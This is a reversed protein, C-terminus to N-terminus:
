GVTLELSAVMEVGGGGPYGAPVVAVIEVSSGPVLSAPLTVVQLPLGGANVDSTPQAETLPAAIGPVPNAEKETRVAVLSVCPISQNPAAAATSGVPGAVMALTTLRAYVLVVAGPAARDTSTALVLQQNPRSPDTRTVADTFGAPVATTGGASLATPRCSGSDVTSTYTVSQQEAGGGVARSSKSASTEPAGGTPGLHISLALLGVAAVAAVATAAGFAPRMHIVRLRDRLSPKAAVPPTGPLHVTVPMTMKPMARLADIGACFEAYASHCEDCNALHTDFRDRAVGGLEREYAQSFLDVVHSLTM